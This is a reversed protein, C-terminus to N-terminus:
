WHSLSDSGVIAMIVAKLNAPLDPWANIVRKLDSDVIKSCTLRRQSDRTILAQNRPAPKLNSDQRGSWKGAGVVGLPLFVGGRGFRDGGVSSRFLLFLGGLRIGVPGGIKGLAIQKILV